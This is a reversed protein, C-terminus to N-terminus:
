HSGRFVRVRPDDGPGSVQAPATALKDLRALMERVRSVYPPPGSVSVVGADATTRIPFRQDAIGLAELKAPLAKLEDPPWRGIDVLETKVEAKAGVYLVAGDFYWVLGYSECLRALFEEATGIPLPGRLHGRVQDSVKVALGVNRGFETLVDKLDQDIVIYRYPDPPWKPSVGHAPLVLGASLLAVACTTRVPMAMAPRTRALMRSTADGFAHPM